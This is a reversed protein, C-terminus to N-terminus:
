AFGEWESEFSNGSYMFFNTKLGNSCIEFVTNEEENLPVFEGFEENRQNLWDHHENPKIEEWPVATYDGFDSKKELKRERTLYDGIDHHYVKERGQKGKKKVLLTITVPTRSGSGFIKGGEKRSLEGSTRQNGRPTDPLRYGFAEREPWDKWLWVDSFLSAYQPALKLFTSVLREFSDGRGKQIRAKRPIRRPNKEADTRCAGQPSHNYQNFGLVIICKKRTNNDNLASDVTEWPLLYSLPM